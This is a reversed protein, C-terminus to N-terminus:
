ADAGYASDRAKRLVRILRNIQERDVTVRWGEPQEAEPCVSVDTATWTTGCMCSCGTSEGTLENVTTTIEHRRTARTSAVQVWGEDDDRSPRWSVEARLDSSVVDRINEKPL